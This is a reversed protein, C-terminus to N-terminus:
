ASCPDRFKKGGEPPEADAAILWPTPNIESSPGESVLHYYADFPEVPVDVLGSPDQSVLVFICAPTASEIEKVEFTTGTPARKFTVNTRGRLVLKFGDLVREAAEDRYSAELHSRAANTVRGANAVEEVAATHSEDLADLVREVYAEDIEDPIAFEDAETAEATPSAETTPPATPPAAAPGRPEAEPSCAVMSAVLAVAVATLAWPRRDREVGCTM